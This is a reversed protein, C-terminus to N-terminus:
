NPQLRSPYAIILASVVLEAIRGHDSRWFCFYCQTKLPNENDTTYVSHQQLYRGAGSLDIDQEM